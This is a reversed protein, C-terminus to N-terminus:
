TEVHETDLREVVLVGAGAPFILNHLIVQLPQLFKAYVEVSDGERGVAPRAAAVQPRAHLVEYTPQFYAVHDEHLESAGWVSGNLAEWNPDNVDAYAELSDRPQEGAPNRRVKSGEGGGKCGKTIEGPEVTCLERAIRPSAEGLEGTEQVSIFSIVNALRPRIDSGLTATIIRVSKSCLDGFYPVDVNDEIMQPREQDGDVVAREWPVNAATAVESVDDPTDKSDSALM